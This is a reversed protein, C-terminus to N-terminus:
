VEQQIRELVGGMNETIENNWFRIVKIGLSNLYKTREIDHKKIDLTAHQGGDLEIALHKEPCYFDLIYHGTSYQRFFKLGFVQKNRLRQWLLMEVQTQNRRLKRRKNKLDILNYVLTM